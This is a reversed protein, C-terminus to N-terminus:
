INQLYTKKSKKEKQTRVARKRRRHSMARRLVDERQLEERKERRARRAKAKERGEGRRGLHRPRSCFHSRLGHSHLHFDGLAARSVGHCVGDRVARERRALGARTAGAAGVSRRHGGIGVRTGRARLVGALRGGRRVVERGEDLAGARVASARRAM